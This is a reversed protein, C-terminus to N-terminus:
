PGWGNGSSELGVNSGAEGCLTGIDLAGKPASQFSSAMPYDLGDGGRWTKLKRRGALPGIHERSVTPRKLIEKGLGTAAKLAFHEIVAEKKAKARSNCLADQRLKGPM